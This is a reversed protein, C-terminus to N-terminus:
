NPREVDILLVIRTKDSKNWAEHEFSDDFIFCKGEKWSKTQDGVRLACNDPVILGLHCRLYSKDSAFHPHIHTGPALSSFGATILNPIQEILSVTKPCLECNVPMKQKYGYFGFVDWGTNYIEVEHWPVFGGQIFEIENVLQETESPELFDQTNISVKNEQVKQERQLLQELEKRIMLWNSELIQTFEFEKTEYFFKSEQQTNM